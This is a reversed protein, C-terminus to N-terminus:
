RSKLIGLRLSQEFRIVHIIFIRGSEKEYRYFIRCPSVILQRYLADPLEDPTSGSEPHRELRQVKQFANRVLKKASEPDDLSIYDAIKDLEELAPDTWIIQAM